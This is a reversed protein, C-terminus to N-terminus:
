VGEALWGPAGIDRVLVFGCFEKAGPALFGRKTAVFTVTLDARITANSPAGTDCDLGSPVDIAILAARRAANVADIATALPERVAGTFGTGLLADVVLDDAKLERAFARAAEPTTVDGIQLSSRGAAAMAEIVRLNTAADGAIRAREGVIVVAVPVGANAVHRAVVFGDGGNNGTGALVVVRGAANRAQEELVVAAANRGANEMLVVSPIGLERVAREDVRRVEARSLSGHPAAM